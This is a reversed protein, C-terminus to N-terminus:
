NWTKSITFQATIFMPIHIVRNYVSKLENKLKHHSDTRDEMLQIPKWEWWCLITLMKKMDEGASKQNGSLVSEFSTLHIKM